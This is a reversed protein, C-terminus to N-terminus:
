SRTKATYVHIEKWAICDLDAWPVRRLVPLLVSPPTLSICLWTGGAKLVSALQRAVLELEYDWAESCAIADVTGKDIVISFQSEGFSKTLSRADAVVYKPGGQAYPWRQIAARIAEKSIDCATINTWGDAYMCQSLPSSGCGVELIPASFPAGLTGHMLEKLESDYGSLWDKMEQPNASYQQEWFDASAFSQQGQDEVVMAV